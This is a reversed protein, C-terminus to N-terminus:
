VFYTACGKFFPLFSVIAEEPNRYIVVYKLKDNYDLFPGGPDSHTKFARPVDKPRNRWRAYLEEDTQDPREKFEM